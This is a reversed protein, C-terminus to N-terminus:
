ELKSIGYIDGGQWWMLWIEFFYNTFFHDQRLPKYESMIRKAGHDDFLPSESYCLLFIKTPDVGVYLGCKLKELKSRIADVLQEEPKLKLNRKKYPNTIGKIDEWYNKAQSQNDYISTIEISYEESCIIDPEKKNPDGAKIYKITLSNKENYLKLFKLAINRERIQKKNTEM